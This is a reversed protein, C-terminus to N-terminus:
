TSEAESGDTRTLVVLWTLLAWFAGGVELGFITNDVMERVILAMVTCSLAWVLTRSFPTTQATQMWRWVSYAVAVLILLFAGTGLLGVETLLGL